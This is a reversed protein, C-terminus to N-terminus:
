MRYDRIKVGIESVNTKTTPIFVSFITKIGPLLTPADSNGLIVREKVTTDKIACEVIANNITISSINGITGTVMFGNDKFTTSINSVYFLRDVIQHYDKGLDFWEFEYTKDEPYLNIGFPHKELTDIKDSLKDLRKNIDNTSCSFLLIVGIIVITLLVKM